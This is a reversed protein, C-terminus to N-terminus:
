TTSFGGFTALVAREPLQLGIGDGKMYRLGLADQTAKGFAAWNFMEARRARPTAGSASAGAAFVGVAFLCILLAPAVM